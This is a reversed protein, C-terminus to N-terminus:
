QAGGEAVESILYGPRTAAWERVLMADAGAAVLRGDAFRMTFNDFRVSLKPYRPSLFTVTPLPETAAAELAARRFRYFRYRAGIAKAYLEALRALAPLEAHWRRVHDLGYGGYDARLDASLVLDEIADVITDETAEYFPLRQHGFDRRMAELTWDDAGAIVPIGMGWAEIANCGYGLGVQDFYIDARAKAELSERWTAGEILELEVQLGRGQLVAIAAELAATSKITRNTPCSVVRIVSPSQAPTANRVTMLEDLDYASPLWTLQGPAFRLLDHTSVAQVMRFKAALELLREHGNRFLSGHHHLLAPKKTRNGGLQRYAVPSNNLHVVDAERFLARVGRDTFSGYIIDGPFQMYPTFRHASRIRLEPGKDAAAKFRGAVGAPDQKGIILAKISQEGGHRDAALKFRYNGGNTDLAASM